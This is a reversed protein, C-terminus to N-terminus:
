DIPSLTLEVFNIVGESPLDFCKLTATQASAAPLDITGLKITRWQDWGGTGPAKAVLRAAGLTLELGAPATGPRSYRLSAQYRRGLAHDFKWSLSQDQRDWWGINPEGYRTNFHIEPPGHTTADKALLRINNAQNAAPRPAAWLVLLWAFGFVFGTVAATRLLTDITRLIIRKVNM